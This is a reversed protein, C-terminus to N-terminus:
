TQDLWSWSSIFTIKQCGQGLLLQCSSSFIACFAASHFPNNCYCNYMYIIYLALIYLRNSSFNVNDEKTEGKESNAGYALMWLYYHLHRLRQFKARPQIPICVQIFTQICYLLWLHTFMDKGLLVFRYYIVIPQKGMAIM